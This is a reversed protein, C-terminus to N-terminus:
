WPRELIVHYLLFHFKEILFDKPTTMDKLNSNKPKQKKFLCIKFQSQGRPM